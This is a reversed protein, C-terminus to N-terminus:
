FAEGISIHFAGPWRTLGFFNVDTDDSTVRGVREADDFTQAKPVRFGLDLRIAGIPTFYRLGFGVSLQPHKFDLKPRRNVDGADGFLVLGIDATLPMRLEVQALWRRVGGQRGSGLRNALYGRNGAAGGGYFRETRPGIEASIDDVDPDNVSTIFMAGVLFRAAITIRRPLPIYARVDPQIRIYDWSSARGFIYGAEQLNLQFYFGGHPRTPDDRLDLWFVQEFRMLFYSKPLDPLEPETIQDTVRENIEGAPVKYWTFAPLGLSIFIKQRWFHRELYLGTDIQHRFFVDRQDLGLDYRFDLRLNTRAEIFAPQRLTVETTLGPRPNEPGPFEQPFIIKPEIKTTLRRLGGLFNRNEYRAVLHLDWRSLSVQSFDNRQIIGSTLGGGLGFRHKRAASVTVRVPVVNGHEPILPEVTVASFAGLGYIARQADRVTEQSYREGAFIQAAAAITDAPLEGSEEVQVDGFVCVPGTSVQLDVTAKRADRDIRVQGKIQARAYGGEALVQRMAAKTQDYFAEDWREGEKLSVANMLGERLETPVDDLGYITLTELTTPLGEEVVFTVSVECGEDDDIRECGPEPDDPDLLDTGEATEPVVRTDTVRAHHHGRAAYWREIREADQEVLVRDYYPWETWPWSWLELKARDGVFPPEGCTDSDLVDFDFEVEDRERTALCALVSDPDFVEAGEVAVSEVGYRNPPVKQCAFLTLLLLAWRTKM